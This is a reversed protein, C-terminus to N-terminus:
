EPDALYLGVKGQDVAFAYIHDGPVSITTAESGVGTLYHVELEETPIVFKHEAGAALTYKGWQSGARRVAYNQPKETLNKIKVTTEVAPTLIPPPSTRVPEQPVTTQATHPTYQVTQPVYQPQPQYAQVPQQQVYQPQQVFEPQPRNAAAAQVIGVIGAALGLAEARRDVQPPAPVRRSQVHNDFEINRNPAKSQPFKVGGFQAQAEGSQLLGFSVAVLALQWLLKRTTAQM